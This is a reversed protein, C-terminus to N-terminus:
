KKKRSKFDKDIKEKWSADLVANARVSCIAESMVAYNLRTGKEDSHYNVARDKNIGYRAATEVADINAGM